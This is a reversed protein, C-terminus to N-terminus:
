QLIRKAAESSQYSNPYKEVITKYCAQASAVNGIENLALAQKYLYYPATFENDSLEVAQKFLEAAEAYNGREVAIDGRLGINMANIVDAYVSGEVPEYAELYKQANDLDGLHLYHIGAYHNALNGAKTSGHEEIFKIYGMADGDGELARNHDQESTAAQVKWIDAQAKEEKKKDIYKWVFFGAVAVAVIVFAAIIKKKHNEFFKEVKGATEVTLDEHQNNVKKSM